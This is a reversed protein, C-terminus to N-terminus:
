CHWCQTADHAKCQMGSRGGFYGLKNRRPAKILKDWRPLDIKLRTTVKEAAGGESEAGIDTIRKRVEAKALGGNLAQNLKKLIEPPTGHPANLSIWSSVDFGPYGLEAVTPVEPLM